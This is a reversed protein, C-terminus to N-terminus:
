HEFRAGRASERERSEFEDRVSAFFKLDAAAIGPGSTDCARILQNGETYKGQQLYARLLLGYARVNRPDRRAIPELLKQAEQPERSLVELNALNMFAAVNTPSLRIASQLLKRAEQYNGQHVMIASLGIKSEVFDPKRQLAIKWHKEADKLNGLRWECSAM